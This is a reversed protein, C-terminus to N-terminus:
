KRMDQVLRRSEAKVGREMDRVTLKSLIYFVQISLNLFHAVLLNTLKNHHFLLSTRKPLLLRSLKRTPQSILSNSPLVTVASLFPYKNSEM